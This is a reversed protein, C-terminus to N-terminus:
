HILTVIMKRTRVGRAMEQIGEIEDINDVFEVCSLQESM